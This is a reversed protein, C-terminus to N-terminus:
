AENPSGISFAAGTMTLGTSGYVPTLNDGKSGEVESPAPLSLIVIQLTNM